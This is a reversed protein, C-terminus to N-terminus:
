LPAAYEIKAQERQKAVYASQLRQREQKLLGARIREEVEALPQPGADRRETVKIIDFGYTTRVVDSLGGIPLATVAKEFEPLMDGAGFFGLDGGHPASGPDQSNDRAVAAFDAGAKLKALLEAAKAQAAAKEAPKAKADVRILIHSARVQAPQLFEKRNQDYFGQVQAAEVRADKLVVSELFRSVALTKHTARRLEADSTGQAKLADAYAKANPFRGRTRDVEENVAQDPVVVGHKASDQYLLELDILSELADRAFGRVLKEDPETESVAVMGRVVEKVARREIATGNVRAVVDEDRFGQVIPEAASAQLAWCLFPLLAAGSSIRM